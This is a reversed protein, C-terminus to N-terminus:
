RGSVAISIAFAHDMIAAAVSYRGNDHRDRGQYHRAPKKVIVPRHHNQDRHYTASRHRYDPRHPNGKGKEWGYHQGSPAKSVQHHNRDNKRHEDRGRDAWSNSGMGLVFGVLAVGIIILKRTM